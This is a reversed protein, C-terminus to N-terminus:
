EARPAPKPAAGLGRSRTPVCYGLTVDIGLPTGPIRRNTQTLLRAIDGYTAGAALEHSVVSGGFILRLRGSDAIELQQMNM